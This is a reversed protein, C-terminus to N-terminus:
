WLIDRVQLIVPGDNLAEVRITQCEGNKGTVRHLIATADGDNQPFLEAGELNDAQWRREEGEVFSEFSGEPYSM